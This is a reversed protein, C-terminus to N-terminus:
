NGPLCGSSRRMEELLRRGYKSAQLQSSTSSILLQVQQVLNSDQVRLLASAVRWGHLSTAFTIFGEVDTMLGAALLRQQSSSGFILAKELVYASNRHSASALIETSLISFLQSRNDDNGHEVIVQLVYHGYNHYLLEKAGNLIEAVLVSTYGQFQGACTHHELLRSLVRCAYGHKSMEVASGLLEDVVFGSLSPPLHQVIKQIVYNANPCKVARRICGKLEHALKAATRAPAMEMAAQVVRCGAKDFSLEKVRGCLSELVEQGGNEMKSMLELSIMSIDEDSSPESSSKSTRAESVNQMNHRRGGRAGRRVHKKLVDISTMSNESCDSSNSSHGSEYLVHHLPSSQPTM